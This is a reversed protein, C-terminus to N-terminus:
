FQDEEHWVDLSFDDSPVAGGARGTKEELLRMLNDQNFLDILVQAQARTFYMNIQRSETLSDSGSNGTERASRMHTTFFPSNGRFRYGLEIVPNAERTRAFRFSEWEVRGDVRGYIARTRRHRDELNRAAFDQSYQEFAAAFRLRAAADWFQRFTVLEHRFQLAVSNTRPHFFVEVEARNLSSSFARDFQAEIVGVPFPAVDAVM